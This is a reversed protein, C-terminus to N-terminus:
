IFSAERYDDSYKRSAEKKGNILRKILLVIVKNLAINPVNSHFLFLRPTGTFM